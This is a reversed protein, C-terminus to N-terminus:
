PRSLPLILPSARRASPLLGSFQVSCAGGHFYKEPCDDTPVGDNRQLPRLPKATAVGGAKVGSERRPTWCGSRQTRETCSVEDSRQKIRLVQHYVPTARTRRCRTRMSTSATRARATPVMPSDDFWPLRHGELCRITAAGEGCTARDRLLRELSEGAEKMSGGLSLHVHELHARVGTQARLYGRAVAGPPPQTTPASLGLTRWTALHHM